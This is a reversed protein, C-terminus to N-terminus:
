CALRWRPVRDRALKARCVLKTRCALKAPCALPARCAGVTGLGIGGGRRGPRQREVEGGAGADEAAIARRAGRASLLLVWTCTLGEDAREGLRRVGGFRRREAPLAARHPRVGGPLDASHARSEGTVRVGGHLEIGCEGRGRGGVPRDAGREVAGVEEVLDCGGDGAGFSVKCALGAWRGESEGADGDGKMRGVQAGDVDGDLGAAAVEGGVAQGRVEVGGLGENVGPELGVRGGEARMEGADPEVELVEAERGGGMIVGAARGRVMAVREDRRRGLGRAWGGVAVGHQEAWM